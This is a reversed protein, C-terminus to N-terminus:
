EYLYVFFITGLIILVATGYSLSKIYEDRMEKKKELEALREDLAKRVALNNITVIKRDGEAIFIDYTGVRIIENLADRNLTNFVIEYQPNLNLYERFLERKIDYTKWNFMSITYTGTGLNKLKITDSSIIKVLGENVFIPCSDYPDELKIWLETSFALNSLLIITCAIFWKM